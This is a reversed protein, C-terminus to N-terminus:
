RDGEADDAPRGGVYSIGPPRDARDAGAAVACLGLVLCVVLGALILVLGCVIGGILTLM